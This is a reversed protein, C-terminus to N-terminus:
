KWILQELGIGKAERLMARLRELVEEPTDSDKFRTSVATATITINQDRFKFPLHSVQRQINKVLEYCEPDAREPMLVIFEEGTFRAITDKDSLDAKINRAIIKLAKDGATYGFSDNVAKFNDIDFKVVRLSHQNRIWRRYEVELRENFASRNLVRTLPDQQMREAQEDLRRRYDQTTEHLAELQCHNFKMRELLTKEREEAHKLRENLSAIQSLIPTLTTQAEEITQAQSLANKSNTVLSTLEKGHDVRQEYYSESQDTIQASSKLSGSLSENVQVLFQQSTKREFHTAQIVLKLVHLTEELLTHTNVGLLLKARVDNLLDGSEGAFDLETILHQLESNLQKLLEKDADSSLIANTSEPNSILIKIARQYIALLKMAQETRPTENAVCLSLLDRLDRKIKSPIGAVRLLTEGAHKVQSDLQQRQSDMAVTHQKILRELVLLKPILSSLDKQKEIALKLEQLGSQLHPNDSICTSSLSTVVRQLVQLERKFKFSTDRQTLRAQELQSKLKHLQSQIDQELAGM